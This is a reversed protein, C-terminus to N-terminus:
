LLCGRLNEVISRLKELNQYRPNLEVLAVAACDRLDANLLHYPINGDGPALHLDGFGFPLRNINSTHAIPEFLGFNDHIHLHRIYPKAKRVATALDFGLVNASIHAHGVDLCIKVNPHGIEAIHAILQDVRAASFEDEPSYDGPTYLANEVCITVGLEQARDGLRVLSEQEWKKRELIRDWTAEGFRRPVHGCHYVLVSAELEGALDLSARLVKEHLSGYEPDMLNTPDPGHLTYKLGYAKVLKSVERLRNPILEGHIIVDLSHAAIEVYDFGAEQFKALDERLVALNGDTRNSDANIGIGQIM